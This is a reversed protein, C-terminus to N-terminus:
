VLIFPPEVLLMLLPWLLVALARKQPPLASGLPPLQSEPLMFILALGMIQSRHKQMLMPLLEWPLQLHRALRHHLVHMQM